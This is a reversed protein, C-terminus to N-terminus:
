RHAAQQEHRFSVCEIGLKHCRTLAYNTAASASCKTVGEQKLCHAIFM